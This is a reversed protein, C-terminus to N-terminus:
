VRGLLYEQNMDPTTAGSKDELTVMFHEANKPVDKVSIFRGRISDDIMGVSVPQGDVYAWLQYGKTASSPVLHHIMISAEGTKKDWYMTCRCISHIGVGMMAVPTISPNKLINYDAMPLTTQSQAAVVEEQLKNNKQLLMFNYACSFILLIGAAIALWKAISSVPKVVPKVVSLHEQHRTTHLAIANKIRLDDTASLSSKQSMLNRELQEEFALIAVNIEDYKTRALDIKQEEEETCLGLVYAEIDGPLIHNEINM